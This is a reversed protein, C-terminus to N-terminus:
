RAKTYALIIRVPGVRRGLLFDQADLPREPVVVAARNAESGVAIQVDSEAVTAGGIIGEVVALVEFRKEALDQADVDVALALALVVRNRLVVREDIAFVRPRFGPRPAQAVDPTHGEVLLGADQPGGVDALVEVFLDVEDGLAAVVAPLQ